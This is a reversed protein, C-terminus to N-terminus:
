VRPACLKWFAGMADDCRQAIEEHTPEDLVRNVRRVQQDGILLSFYWGTAALASPAEIMGHRMADEIVGEILPLLAERGAAAIAAGLEGTDDMAAARNLMIAREGLVLKLLLPAFDNLTRVPDTGGALAKALKAKTASTNTEVMSLFLGRKDGYWRYLTENSAKAAKAITLMSTAAYGREAVLRAATQHIELERKARAEEKM